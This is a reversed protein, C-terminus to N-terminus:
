TTNVTENLLMARTLCYVKFPVFNLSQEKKNEQNLDTEMAWLAKCKSCYCLIAIKKMRNREKKRAAESM